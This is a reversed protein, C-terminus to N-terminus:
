LWIFTNGSGTYPFTVTQGVSKRVGDFTCEKYVTVTYLGTSSNFGNVAYYGSIAGYPASFAIANRIIEVDNDDYNQFYYTRFVTKKLKLGGSFPIVTDAGNM